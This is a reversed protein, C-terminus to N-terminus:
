GVRGCTVKTRVGSHHGITEVQCALERHLRQTLEEQFLREGSLKAVAALIDEVKIARSTRVSLAYVDPLGDVPCIAVAELAHEVMM